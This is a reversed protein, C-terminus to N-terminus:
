IDVSVDVRGAGLPCTEKPIFGLADVRELVAQKFGSCTFLIGGM